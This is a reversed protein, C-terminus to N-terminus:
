RDTVSGADGGVSLTSKRARTLGAHNFEVEKGTQFELFDSVQETYGGPGRLPFPLVGAPEQVVRQARDAVSM